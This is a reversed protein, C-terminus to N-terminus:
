QSLCELACGNEEYVDGLVNGSMANICTSIQAGPSTCHIGYLDNGEIVNGILDGTMTGSLAIGSGGNDNVATNGQLHVEAGSGEIRIGESEGGTFRSDTVSYTGYGGIELAADLAGSVRLSDVTATSVNSLYVGQGSATGMVFNDGTIELNPISYVYIANNTTDLFDNDDIRLIESGDINSDSVQVGSGVSDFTNGSIDIESTFYYSYIASSCGSFMNDSLMAPSEGQYESEYSYLWVCTGPMEFTNDELTGSFFYSSLGYYGSSTFTNGSITADTAYAYICANGHQGFTNDEIYLPYGAASHTNFVYIGTYNDEFTCGSVTLDGESITMGYDEVSTFSTDEVRGQSTSYAVATAQHPYAEPNDWDAPSLAETIRTFTSDFFDVDSDRIDVGTIVFDHADLRTFTGATGSIYAGWLKTDTIEDDTSTFESGNIFFGVVDVDRVVNGSMTLQEIDFLGFGMGTDYTYEAPQVGSWSLGDVTNGTFTVEDLSSVYLGFLEGDRVTNGSVVATGGSPEPDYPYQVFMGYVGLGEVLNDEVVFTGDDNGVAIGVSDTSSASTTTVTNGRVESDQAILFIGYYVIEDITSDTVVSGDGGGAVGVIGYSSDSISCDRVDLDSYIGYIAVVNCTDIVSSDLTVADPADEVYVCTGDYDDEQESQAVNSIQVGQIDASTEVLRIGYGQNDIIQTSVISLDSGQADIAGFPNQTFYGGEIIATTNKLSLGYQGTSALTVDDILLGTVNEAVIGNRSSEVSLQAITVDPATITIAMENTSGVVVSQEATVGLITLSKDVTVSGEFTGSCLSISDGDQAVYIADALNAYGPEVGNVLICGSDFSQTDDDAVDDDSLASDDDDDDDGEPCGALIFGLAGCLALRFLPHDYM